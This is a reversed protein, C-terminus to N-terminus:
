AAIRAFNFGCRLHAFIIRLRALCSAAQGAKNAKPKDMPWSLTAAVVQNRGVLGKSVEEM